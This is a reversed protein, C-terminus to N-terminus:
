MRNQGEFYLDDPAPPAHEAWWGFLKRIHEQRAAEQRAALARYQSIAERADPHQGALSSMDRIAKDLVDRLRLDPLLLEALGLGKPTGPQEFGSFHVAKRTVEGTSLDRVHTGDIPQTFEPRLNYAGIPEAETFRVYGDGLVLADRIAQAFYQMTGSVTTMQQLWLRTREPGGSVRSQIGAIAGVMRDLLGRFDEFENYVRRLLPLRPRSQNASSLFEPRYELSVEFGSDAAQRGTARATSRWGYRLEDIARDQGSQDAAAVQAHINDVSSDSERFARIERKREITQALFGLTSQVQLEIPQNMIIAIHFVGDFVEPDTFEGDADVRELHFVFLTPQAFTNIVSNLCVTLPVPGGATENVVQVLERLASQSNHLHRENPRIQYSFSQPDALVDEAAPFSMRRPGGRM